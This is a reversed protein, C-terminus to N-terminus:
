RAGARGPQEPGHGITAQDDADELRGLLTLATSGIVTVQVYRGATAAPADFVAIHDTRTRGTMQM